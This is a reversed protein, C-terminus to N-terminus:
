TSSTGQNCVEALIIQSSDQEIRSIVLDPSGEYFSEFGAQASQSFFSTVVLVALFGSFYHSVKMFLQPLTINV